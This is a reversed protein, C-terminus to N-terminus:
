IMGATRFDPVPDGDLCSWLHLCHQHMNVYDGKRPLVQVALKQPGVFIDKVRQVDAWSPLRSPRSVSVHLWRKSDAETRASLIVGLRDGSFYHLYPQTRKVWGAPLIRPIVEDAWPPMEVTHEEEALVAAAKELSSIRM